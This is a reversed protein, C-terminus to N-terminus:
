LFTAFVKFRGNLRLVEQEHSREHPRQSTKYQNHSTKM